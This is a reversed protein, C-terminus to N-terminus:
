TGRVYNVVEDQRTKTLHAFIIFALLHIGELYIKVGLVSNYDCIRFFGSLAGPNGTKTKYKQIIELVGQSLIYENSM